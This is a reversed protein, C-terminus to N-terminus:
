VRKMINRKAEDLRLHEFFTLCANVGQIRCDLSSLRGSDCGEFLMDAKQSQYGEATSDGRRVQDEHRAPCVSM